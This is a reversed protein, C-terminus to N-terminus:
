NSLITHKKQRIERLRPWTKENVPADGSKEQETAPATRHNPEESAQDTIQESHAFSFRQINKRAFNHSSSVVETNGAALKM